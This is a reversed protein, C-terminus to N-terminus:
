LWSSSIITARLQEIQICAAACLQYVAVEQVKHQSGHYLPVNLLNTCLCAVLLRIEVTGSATWLFIYRCLPILLHGTVAMDFLYISWLDHGVYWYISEPKEDRTKDSVLVTRALCSKETAPGLDWFEMTCLDTPETWHGKHWKSCWVRISVQICSPKSAKWWNIGGRDNSVLDVSTM